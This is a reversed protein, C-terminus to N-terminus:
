IILAERLAEKCNDIFEEPMGLNEAVVIAAKQKSLGMEKWPFKKIHELEKM